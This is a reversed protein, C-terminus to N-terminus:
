VRKRDGRERVFIMFQGAKNTVRQGIIPIEDRGRKETALRLTHFNCRQFAKVPFQRWKGGIRRGLGNLGNNIRDALLAPEFSQAIPELRQIFGKQAVRLTRAHASENRKRAYRVAPLQNRLRQRLSPSRVAYLIILDSSCVDSSWDSIRM